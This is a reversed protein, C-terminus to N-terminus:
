TPLLFNEASVAKWYIAIIRDCDIYTVVTVSINKRNREVM